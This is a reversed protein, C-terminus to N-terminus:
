PYLELLRNYFEYKARQYEKYSKGDFQLKLQEYEKCLAPNTSLIEFIQWQEQSSESAPDSLWLDIEIGEREFSWAAVGTNQVRPEGFLEVFTVLYTPFLAPSTMFDLDLDNQGAIGLAAAGTYRAELEPHHAQVEAILREAMEKYRPSFPVIHVVKEDSLTALYKTQAETLM